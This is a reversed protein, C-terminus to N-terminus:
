QTKEKLGAVHSALVTAAYSSLARRDKRALAKLKKHLDPAVPVSMKIDRM